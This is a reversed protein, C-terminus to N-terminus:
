LFGHIEMICQNERMKLIIIRMVIHFLNKILYLLSSIGGWKLYLHILSYDFINEWEYDKFFDKALFLLIFICQM